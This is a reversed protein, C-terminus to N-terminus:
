SGGGAAPPRPRRVPTCTMGAISRSARGSAPRRSAPRRPRCRRGSRGAPASRRATRPAHARPEDVEDVEVPARVPAGALRSATPATADRPRRGAGARRRADVRGLRDPERERGARGPDDQRSAIASRGSSRRAHRATAPSQSATPRSGRGSRSAANGHRRGPAASRRPARRRARRPRRRGTRGSGRRRPAPGRAADTRENPRVIGLDEDGAPDAIEVPEAAQAVGADGADDEALREQGPGDVERLGPPRRMVVVRGIRGAGGRRAAIAAGDRRARRAATPPPAAAGSRRRRRRRATTPRSRADVPPAAADRPRRAGLQGVAGARLREGGALRPGDRELGVSPRRDDDLDLGVQRRDRGAVEDREGLAAEVVADTKWRRRGPAEDDLAAVRGAGPRASRAVRDLVLRDRRRVLAARDRHGARRSGFADARLEEDDEVVAVRSGSGAVGVLDDARTVDPM